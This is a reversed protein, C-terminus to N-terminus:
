KSLTYDKWSNFRVICYTKFSEKSVTYEVM